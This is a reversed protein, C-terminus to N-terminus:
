EHIPQSKKDKYQIENKIGPAPQLKEKQIVTRKQLEKEHKM